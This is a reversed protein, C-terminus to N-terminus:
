SQRRRRRPEVAAEGAEAVADAEQEEQRPGQGAQAATGMRVGHPGQRHRRDRYTRDRRRERRADDRDHRRGRRAYRRHTTRAEADAHGALRVTIDKGVERQFHAPPACRASSARARSRSRTARGSDPGPPRTRSQDPPDRAVVCDLDIGSESGPPTDITVRLTRGRQEVDYLDLGLDAAIPEVLERVRDLETTM